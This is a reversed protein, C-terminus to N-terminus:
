SQWPTSRPDDRLRQYVLDLRIEGRHESKGEAVVELSSGQVVWEMAPGLETASSIAREVDTLYSDLLADITPTENSVAVEVVVRMSCQEVNNAVQRVTEDARWVTCAASEEDIPAALGALTYRGVWGTPPDNAYGSSVSITNLRDVVAQVVQERVSTM